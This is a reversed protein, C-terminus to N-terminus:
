GRTTERQPTVMHMRGGPGRTFGLREYRGALHDGRANIVVVSAPPLGRILYRALGLASLRTGPAQGMAVVTWRLGAPLQKNGCTKWSQPGSGALLVVTGTIFVAAMAALVLTTWTAGGILMHATVAPSAILCLAATAGAGIRVSTALNDRHMAVVGNREPCTHLAGALALGCCVVLTVPLAFWRRLKGTTFAAALVQACRPM